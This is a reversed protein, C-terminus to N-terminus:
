ILFGYFEISEFYLIHRDSWEVGKQRLRIYRYAKMNKNDIKFNHVHLKGNLYSCNKQEDITLWNINDDSVEIVWNKPHSSNESSNTSRITYDTPAIRNEKFDFCIWSNEINQSNFFKSKDDYLVVNSPFREGYISSASINVKNEIKGGSENKLHNLIGSFPNNENYLFQKRRTKYRGLNEVSCEVKQILRKSISSWIDKSINDYDFVSVFESMEESSVNSFIVFEYLQSYDCSKSNLKNIFKILQDEDCLQLNQNNLIDILIDISLEKLEKEHNEILEFFHSSIFDIEESIQKSYFIDYKEHEHILNFVNDNTISEIQESNKLEISENCLIKLVELIFPLEKEPIDQEDFNILNLIHSFEGNQKTTIVFTNFTPDNIHMQCIKPSLLDSILRSTKFEKGNVLFTFDNDYTQLPVNLVCSAKLQIKSM